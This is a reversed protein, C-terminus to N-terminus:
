GVIYWSDTVPAQQRISVAPNTRSTGARGNRELSRRSHLKRWYRHRARPIFLFQFRYVLFEAFIMQLVLYLMKGKSSGQKQSFAKKCSVAELHGQIKCYKCTSTKFRCELALHSTKGCRYWKRQSEDEFLDSTNKGRQKFSKVKHVQSSISCYFTEKAVKAADETETAVEIARLSM